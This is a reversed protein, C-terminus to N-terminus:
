PKATQSAFGAKMREFVARALLEHGAAKMHSGDVYLAKADRGKFVDKMGIIEVNSSALKAAWEYQGLDDAVSHGDAKMVENAQLVLLIPVGAKKATEVSLVTQDRVLDHWQALMAANMSANIESDADSVAGQLRVEQPLLEWFIKETRVEFLRRLVVSKMLWNKPHPSRFEERRRWEREDEFENSSNVHLVVLSPNYKLAQQLVLQKRRAGYGPLGMNFSEAKIGSERLMAGLQGAYSSAVDRGRAVSDGVVMVRAMDPERKLAFAQPFFKRGGARVLDVTGDANEVFGATADYGYDFRGSLTQAFLLRGM